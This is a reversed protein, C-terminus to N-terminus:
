IHETHKTNLLQFPIKNIEREGFTPSFLYPWPVLISSHILPQHFRHLLPLCKISISSFQQKDGTEGQEKFDRDSAVKTKRPIHIINVYFETIHM